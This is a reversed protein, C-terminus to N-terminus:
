GELKNYYAEQLFIAFRGSKIIKDGPISQRNKISVSLLKNLEVNWFRCDLISAATSASPQHDRTYKGCAGAGWVGLTFNDYM